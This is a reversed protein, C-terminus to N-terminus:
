LCIMGNESVTTSNKKKKRVFKKTCMHKYLLGRFVHFNQRPVRNMFTFARLYKKVCNFSILCVSFYCVCLMYLTNSYGYVLM